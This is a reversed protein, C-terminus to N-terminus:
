GGFANLLQPIAPGLIVVLITPFILFIMPILMKIAAQQALEQARQRRRLRLQDAQVNLTDGLSTWLEDAQILSAVLLRIDDIQTRQALHQLAERRGTGVNMERLVLAFEDALENDTRQVLELVSGDFSLGAGVGISLLDLADSLQRTIANQRAKVRRGLWVNPLYFGLVGLTVGILLARLGDGALGVAGYGLVGLLGALAVKAALLYQLHRDAYFGAQALNQRFRELRSQPLLRAGLRAARATLPTLSARTFDPEDGPDVGRVYRLLRRTLRRKVTGLVLGAYLLAVGLGALLGAALVGVESPQAPVPQVAVAEDGATAPAAASGSPVRYGFRAVAGSLQPAELSLQAEVQRGPTASVRSIWSLEYESSVQRGVTALAQVLDRGGLARQFRGGTEVAIPELVESPAASGYAVTYVPMGARQALAVGEAVDATSGTDPGGSIVVLARAGRPASAAEAAGRLLGDYLRTGRSAQIRDVERSVLARDSTLPQEVTVVGGFSVLGVQDLPRAQELYTKAAQRISALGGQEIMTRGADVVLVVSIPAGPERVQLLEVSSPPQGDEVIQFQGAGIEGVPRGDSSRANVRAAVRPFGDARVDVVEVSGDAARVPSIAALVTLLTLLLLLCPRGASAVTM